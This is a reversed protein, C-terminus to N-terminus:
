HDCDDDVCFRFVLMNPFVIDKYTEWVEDPPVFSYYYGTENEGYFNYGSNNGNVILPRDFWIAFRVETKSYSVRPLERTFSLEITDNPLNIKDVVPIHFGYYNNKFYCVSTPFVRSNRLSPDFTLWSYKVMAPNIFNDYYLQFDEKDHWNNISVRITYPSFYNLHLLENHDVLRGSEHQLNITVLYPPTSQSTGPPSETIFGSIFALGAAIAGSVLATIEALAYVAAGLAPNIFSVIPAVIVAVVAAAVAITTFVRRLRNVISRASRPEIASDAEFSAHLSGWIAMGTIINRIRMNQSSNLEPNDTHLAILSANMTVPLLEYYGDQEFTINYQQFESDYSSFYGNKTEGDAKIIMSVPFSSNEMFFISVFFENNNTFTVCSYDDMDDSYVLAGEAYLNDTIFLVTRGADAESVNGDFDAYVFVPTGVGPALPGKDTTKMGPGTVPSCSTYSFTFMLILAILQSSLNFIKNMTFEM